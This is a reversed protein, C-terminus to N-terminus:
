LRPVLPLPSTLLPIATVSTSTSPLLPVWDSLSLYKLREVRQLVMATTLLCSGSACFVVPLFDKSLLHLTHNMQLQLAIGQHSSRKHPSFVLAFTMTPLHCPVYYKLLCSSALMAPDPALLPMCHSWLMDPSASTEFCLINRHPHGTVLTYSADVMLGQPLSFPRLWRGLRGYCFCPGEEM